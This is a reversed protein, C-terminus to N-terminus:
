KSISLINGYNTGNAMATERERCESIDMPVSEVIRLGFGELGKVKVSPNNTLLRIDRVGLDRLIQAGVGYHRLEAKFEQRESAVAPSDKMLGSSYRNIKKAFGGNSSEQNIYVVVGSGHEEIMALSRVLKARSYCYLAGFVDSIACDSHVRVLTDEGSVVEGKVFAMHQLGDIENEFVVTRFVGNETPVEAEAVRRVFSEKGIRYRILDAITAIKIGHRKSFAKLDGLRAMDGNDKMIECIVSAQRFGALRSIDVSGETHGARVLVGGKRAILPFIHGPRVFDEPKSDRSIAHRITAARDYASIGTTVGKKKVDIPITFATHEAADSYEPKMPQLALRDADEQTLSLCILGRGHTAMFNITEATANEAPIVFDGENERDEDDVLIVLKGLKVDEIIEEISNM